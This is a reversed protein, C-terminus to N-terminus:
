AAAKQQTGRIPLLVTFTSGEGPQSVVNVRGSHARVISDVIALGLGCGGTERALRRDVQYFRQFIRRRERPAIGIGNDRVELALSDGERFARLVIAKEDKTYKYANDLLNILVTVLADADAHVEPLGQEVQIDLHCGPHEFREGLADRVTEMVTSVEVPAFEFHQRNRELRSFTLFNEILRTLRLNEGAILALYERTKRPDFESDDLLSDVLLRMSALPTKLEHSVAAVLDTKLRALRLQRRFFQGVVLGTLCLAAVVLYGVWLYAAKRKGAAEDLSRKDILTFAVQWGALMPGAAVSEGTAKEGPPVVSFAAGASPQVLGRMSAMVAPTRLLAIVRGEKGSLKWLDPVRTPELGTGAHLPEAELVRAALREADYTPFTDPKVGMGLLEGMLFLRQPSPMPSQYNNIWGILRGRARARRPDAPEMLHLAFLHEDAAIMRGQLDLANVLRGVSFSELIAQIAARKGSEGSQLALLSRIEGQAARAALSVDPDSKALNTYLGIAMAWNRRDEATQAQRWDARDSGSDAFPAVAPSPYVLSGDARLFVVSDAFGAKIFRAFDHANGAQAELEVARSRWYADVQDRVLRLQGRYAELVSQRASLAQSEAADNMFWLVCVMPGVVGLM